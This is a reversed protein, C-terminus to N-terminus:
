LDDPKSSNSFDPFFSIVPKKCVFSTRYNLHKVLNLGERKHPQLFLKCSKGEIKMTPPKTREGHQAYALLQKQKIEKTINKYINNPGQQKKRLVGQALLSV